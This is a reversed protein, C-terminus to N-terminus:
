QAGAHLKQLVAELKGGTECRPSGDKGRAGMDLDRAMEVDAADWSLDTRGYRPKLILQYLRIEVPKGPARDHVYDQLTRLFSIKGGFPWDHLHLTELGTPLTEIPEMMERLHLHRINAFFPMADRAAWLTDHVTSQGNFQGMSLTEVSSGAWDGLAFCVPVPLAPADIALVSPPHIKSFVKVSEPHAGFNSLILTVKRVRIKDGSAMEDAKLVQVGAPLYVELHEIDGAVEDLIGINRPNTPQLRVKRFTRGAHARKLSAVCEVSAAGATWFILVDDLNRCSDLIDRYQQYVAPGPTHDHIELRLSKVHSLVHRSADDLKTYDGRRLTLNDAYMRLIIQSFLHSQSIQRFSQNVLSLLRLEQVEANNPLSADCLTAAVIVELVEFPIDSFPM